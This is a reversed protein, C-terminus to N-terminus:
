EQNLVELEQQHEAVYRRALAPGEDLDTHGPYFLYGEALAVKLLMVQETVLLDVLTDAGLHVAQDLAAQWEGVAVALQLRQNSDM